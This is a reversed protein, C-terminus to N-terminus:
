AVAVGPTGNSVVHVINHFYVSVLRFIGDSRYWFSINEDNQRIKTKQSFEGCLLKFRTGVLEITISILWFIIKRLM